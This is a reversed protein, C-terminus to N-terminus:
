RQQRQPPRAARPREDEDDSQDEVGAPEEEVIGREAQAIKRALETPNGARLLTEEKAVLGERWLRFLHDDLLFM